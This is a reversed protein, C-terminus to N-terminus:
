SSYDEGPFFVGIQQETGLLGSFTNICMHIHTYIYTCTHTVNYLSFM